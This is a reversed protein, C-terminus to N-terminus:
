RDSPAGAEDESGGASRELDLITPGGLGASEELRSIRRLRAVTESAAEAARLAEEARPKLSPPFSRDNALLDITGVTVALQNNLHHQFTRATLLAGQLRAAEERASRATEREGVLRAAESLVAGNLLVVAAIGVVGLLVVRVWTQAFGESIVAETVVDLVATLAFIVLPTLWGILEVRRLFRRDEAPLDCYRPRFPLDTLPRSGLSVPPRIRLGRLPLQLMIVWGASTPPAYSFRGPM